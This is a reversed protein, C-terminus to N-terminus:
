RARIRALLPLVLLWLAGPRSTDCGCGKDALEIGATGSGASDTYPDSGYDTYGDTNSGDTNNGDTDSAGDTDSTSDTGSTIGTDSTGDTNSTGGTDGTSASGILEIDACQYYTSQGTPDPVPDVTNGNMIQLLQLTCNSCGVNPLTVVFEWLDGQGVNGDSGPPDEVDLLINANFDALDAGDPDFAVRWRGSHGIVEHASITITEGADYITVTTSRNPDSQNSTDSCLSDNPGVGCPCAKNNYYGDSPYRPPPDELGVHALAAAAFTIFM